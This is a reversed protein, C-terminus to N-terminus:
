ALLPANYQDKLPDYDSPTQILADDSEPAKAKEVKAKEVKAKSLEDSLSGVANVATNAGNVMMNAGQEADTALGQQRAADSAAMASQYRATAANKQSANLRGIRAMSEATAQAGANRATAESATTGGAVAQTRRARRVNDANQERLGRLAYQMDARSNLDLYYDRNYLRANRADTKDQLERAKRRASAGSVAGIIGSTIGAAASAIAAWM